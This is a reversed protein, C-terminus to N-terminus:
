VFKIIFNVEYVTLNYIICKWYYICLYKVVDGTADWLILLHSWCQMILIVHTLLQLWLVHASFSSKPM